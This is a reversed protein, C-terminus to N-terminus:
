LELKNLWQGVEYALDDFSQGFPFNPTLIADYAGTDDNEWHEAMDQMVRSLEQVDHYIQIKVSFANQLEQERDTSM